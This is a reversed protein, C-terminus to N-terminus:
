QLHDGDLDSKASLRKIPSVPPAIDTQSPKDGSSSGRSELSAKRPTSSPEDNEFSLKEFSLD